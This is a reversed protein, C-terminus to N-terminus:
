KKGKPNAKRAAVEAKTKRKHCEKCLVQLNEEKCFLREIFSDWSVFGELPCVVPEIHDVQIEKLPFHQKCSNCEYHAAKRGSSENVKKGVFAKEIVAFKPPWRSFGSRITSTIFSKRRGKTWEKIM